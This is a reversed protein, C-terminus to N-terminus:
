RPNLIQTATDEAVATGHATLVRWHAGESIPVPTDSGAILRPRFEAINYRASIPLEVRCTWVYFGGRDLAKRLSPAGIEKAIKKVADAATDAVAWMLGCSAFYHHQLVADAAPSENPTKM